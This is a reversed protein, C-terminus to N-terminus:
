RTGGTRVVVGELVVTPTRMGALDACSRCVAILRGHEDRVTTVAPLNPHTRCAVRHADVARVLALEDRTLGGHPLDWSNRRTAAWAAAALLAVLAVAAAALQPTMYATM